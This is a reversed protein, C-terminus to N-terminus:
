KSKAKPLVRRLLPWLPLRNLVAIAWRMQWPFVTIADKGAIAQVIRAVAQEESLLFPKHGADGGNLARLKATDMYGPVVATVAISFPALAMRYTQCVSLVTRKSASYVSAGPYDKLLGAVSSVAVLHGSRQVLMQAAALEFAHSLGSVNTQLLRLTTAADMPHTRTNFYLGATVILLDLRDPAFSVMAAALAARDAIDLAYAQLRPHGDVATGQLRRTDRGCVAVEDGRELYHRALALGIGSTGGIVLVKM